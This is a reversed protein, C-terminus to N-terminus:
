APLKRLNRQWLRLAVVAEHGREDMWGFAPPLPHMRLGVSIVAVGEPYSKYQLPKGNYPDIPIRSLYKPVLKALDAPWAKNARRYREVALATAATRLKACRYLDARHMKTIAPILLAGLLGEKRPSMRIEDMNRRLGDEWQMFRAHQDQSPLKAIEIAENMKTLLYEQGSEAQQAAPQDMAAPAPLNEDKAIDSITLKKTRLQELLHFMTARESRLTDLTRLDNGEELLLTQLSALSADGPEKQGQHHLVDELTDIAVSILASQVLHSIAFPESKPYRSSNVIGQISAIADDPNNDIADRLAMAQLLAAVKRVDNLHTLPTSLPNTKIEVTFRGQPLNAFQRAKSVAAKHPELTTRLQPTLGPNRAMGRALLPQIPDSWDNPLSAAVDKVVDAGNRGLIPGDRWKAITRDFTWDPESKDLAAALEGAPSSPRTPPRDKWYFWYFSAGGGGLLLLLFLGCGCGLAFLIRSVYKNRKSKRKRRAM